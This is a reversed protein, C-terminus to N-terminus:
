EDDEDLNPDPLDSVLKKLIRSVQIRMEEYQKKIVEADSNLLLGVLRGEMTFVNGGLISLISATKDDNEEPALTNLLQCFFGGTFANCLAHRPTKYDDRTSHFISKLLNDTYEKAYYEYEPNQLYSPAIENKLSATATNIIDEFLSQKINMHFRRELIIEKIAAKYYLQKTTLFPFEEGLDFTFGYSPIKITNIGTRNEVEVGETLIKRCLKLYEKDWKAM